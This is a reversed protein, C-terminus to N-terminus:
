ICSSKYFNFNAIRKPDTTSTNKFHNLCAGDVPFYQSTATTWGVEYGSLLFIRGGLGNAGSNVTGNSQYQAYPIKPVLLSDQVEKSFTTLISSSEGYLWGHIDSTSYANQSYHYKQKEWIDKRLLWMGNCSSDYLSSPLGQHVVLYEVPSGNEILFVSEGVAFDSAKKKVLTPVKLNKSCIVPM